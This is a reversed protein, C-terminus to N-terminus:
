ARTVVVAIYICVCIFDAFTQEICEVAEKFAIKCMSDIIWDWKHIVGGPKLWAQSCRNFALRGSGKLPLHLEKL